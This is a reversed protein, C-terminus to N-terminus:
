GCVVPQPLRAVLRHVSARGYAGDLQAQRRTGDAGALRGIL